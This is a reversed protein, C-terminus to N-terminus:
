PINVHCQSVCLWCLKDSTRIGLSCMVENKPQGETKNADKFGRKLQNYKM